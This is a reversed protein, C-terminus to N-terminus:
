VNSDGEEYESYAVKYAETFSIEKVLTVTTLFVTGNPPVKITDSTNLLNEYEGDEYWCPKIIFNIINTSEVGEVEYIVLQYDDELEEDKWFEMLTYLDSFCMFPLRFKTTNVKDLSYQQWLGSSNIGKNLSWLEGDNYHLIKYAKM